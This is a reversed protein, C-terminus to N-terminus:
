PLWEKFVQLRSFLAATFLTALSMKIRAQYRLGVNYVLPKVPVFSGIIIYLVNATRAYIKWLLKLKLKMFNASRNGSM